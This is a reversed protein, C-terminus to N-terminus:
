GQWQVNERWRQVREEDSLNFTHKLYLLAVVWQIPPRRRGRASVGAGVIDSTPGFLGAGDRAKGTRDQHAFAPALSTEIEAWTMHTSLVALPHRMDIMTELRARFFDEVAM